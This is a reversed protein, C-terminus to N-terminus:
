ATRQDSDICSSPLLHSRSRSSKVVVDYMCFGAGIGISGVEWNRSLM